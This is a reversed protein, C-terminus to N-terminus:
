MTEVQPSAETTTSAIPTSDSNKADSVPNEKTVTNGLRRVFPHDGHRVWVEANAEELTTPEDSAADGLSDKRLEWRQKLDITGKRQYISGMVIELLTAAIEPRGLAILQEQYLIRLVSTM